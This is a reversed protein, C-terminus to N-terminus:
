LVIDKVLVLDEPMFIATAVIAPTLILTRSQVSNDTYDLMSHDVQNFRLSSYKYAELAVDGESKIL